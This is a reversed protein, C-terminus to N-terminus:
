VNTIYNICKKDSQVGEGRRQLYRVTVCKPGGKSCPFSYICEIQLLFFIPELAKCLSQQHKFLTQIQYLVNVIVFCGM